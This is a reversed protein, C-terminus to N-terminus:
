RKNESNYESTAFILKRQEGDEELNYGPSRM